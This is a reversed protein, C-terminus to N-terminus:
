IIKTAGFARKSQTQTQTEFRQTQTQVANANRFARKSVRTQPLMRLDSPPPSLPLHEANQIRKPHTSTRRAGGHCPTKLPSCGKISRRKAANRPRRKPFQTEFRQTKRKTNANQTRKSSHKVFFNHKSTANRLANRFAANQTQTQRAVLTIIDVKM